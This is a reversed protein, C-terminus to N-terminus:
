CKYGLQQNRKFTLPSALRGVQMSKVCEWAGDRVKGHMEQVRVCQSMDMHIKRLGHWCEFVKGSGGQVQTVAWHLRM